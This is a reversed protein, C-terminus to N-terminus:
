LVQHIEVINGMPDYFFVQYWENPPKLAWSGWDAYPIGAEDLRAKAAEIDDTRFAFHGRPGLPNVTQGLREALQNDITSLHLHLWEPDGAILSIIPRDYLSTAKESNPEGDVGSGVDLTKMFEVNNELGLATRYFEAMM